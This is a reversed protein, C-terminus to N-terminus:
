FLGVWLAVCSNLLRTLDSCATAEHISAARPLSPYKHALCEDMQPEGPSSTQASAQVEEIIYRALRAYEIFSSDEFSSGLSLDYIKEFDLKVYVRSVGSSQFHLQVRQLM